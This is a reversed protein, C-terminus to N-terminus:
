GKPRMLDEFPQYGYLPTLDWYQYLWLGHTLGNEYAVRLARVAGALDGLHAATEVAPMFAHADGRPGGDPNQYYISAESFRTAEEADGEKAAMYALLSLARLRKSQFDEHGALLERAEDFRGAYVLLSAQDSPHVWGIRSLTILGAEAVRRASDHLGAGRLAQPLSYSLFAAWDDGASELIEFSRTEAEEIRGLRSLAEVELLALGPPHEDFLSTAREVDELVAEYDGLLMKVEGLMVWPFPRDDLWNGEQDLRTLIEVAERPRNTWAAAQALRYLSLPEPLLGTVRTMARYLSAYDFAMGALYYDLMAREWSPLQNRIPVLIGAVSDYPLITAELALLLPLTFGPDMTGAQLFITAATDSRSARRGRQLDAEWRELVDLGDSLLQYAEFSPPLSAVAAMKSVRPDLVMAVAGAVRGKLRDSVERTRGAAGM